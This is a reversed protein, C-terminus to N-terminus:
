KLPIPSTPACCRASANRFLVTVRMREEDIEYVCRWKKVCVSAVSFRKALSVPATPVCCKASANRFLVTIRMRQEDIEYVCRWKKV